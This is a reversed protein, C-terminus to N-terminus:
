FQPLFVGTITSGAISCQRPNQDGSQVRVSVSHDGPNVFSVAQAFGSEWNNGMTFASQWTNNKNDIFVSYFCSSGQLHGNLHLSLIGKYKLNFTCQYLDGTWGTGANVSYIWSPGACSIPVSGNITDLKSNHGDIVTNIADVQTKTESRLQDATVRSFSGIAALPVVLNKASTVFIMDQADASLDNGNKKMIRNCDVTVKSAADFTFPKTLSIPTIKGNAMIKCTSRGQGHQTVGYFIAQFGSPATIAVNVGQMTSSPQVEFEMGKNALEQCRNWADLSGQYVTKSYASAKEWYKSSNFGLSCVQSQKTIIEQRSASGGAGGSFMGYSAEIQAAQSSSINSSSYDYACFTAMAQYEAAKASDSQTVNYLGMNLLANCGEFNTSSVKATEAFVNASSLTLLAL